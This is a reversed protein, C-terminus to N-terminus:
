HLGAQAVTIYKTSCIASYKVVFSPGGKKSDGQKTSIPQLKGQTMTDGDQYNGGEDSHDTTM